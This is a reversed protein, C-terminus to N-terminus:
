HPEGGELDTLRQEHIEAVHLLRAIGEMIEGTRKENAAFRKENEQFRRENDRQMAAIIEITETLGELREDITRPPKPTPNDTSMSHAHEQEETYRKRRPTRSEGEIWGSIYSLRDRAGPEAPHGAQGDERGANWDDPDQPILLM